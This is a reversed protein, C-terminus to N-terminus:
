VFWLLFEKSWLQFIREDRRASRRNVHARQNRKPELHLCYWSRCSGLEMLQLHKSFTSFDFVSTGDNFASIINDKDECVVAILTFHRFKGLNLAFGNQFNLM